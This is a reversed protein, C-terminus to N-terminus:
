APPTAPFPKLIAAMGAQRAGAVEEPDEGIYLCREIPVKVRQAAYQYIAVEPKDAQAEHNTILGVSDLFRFLGADELLGQVDQLSMNIPLNTIVGLRLGLVGRLVSLLAKSGPDFPELQGKANIAGLTNGIDFFVFALGREGGM